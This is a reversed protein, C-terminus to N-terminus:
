LLVLIFLGEEWVQTEKRLNSTSAPSLNFYKLLPFPNETCIILRILSIGQFFKKLMCNLQYISYSSDTQKQDSLTLLLMGHSFHSLYTPKTMPQSIDMMLNSLLLHRKQLFPPEMQMDRMTFIMIIIIHAKKWFM